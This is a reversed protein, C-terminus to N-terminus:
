GAIRLAAVTLAAASLCCPVLVLTSSRSYAVFRVVALLNLGCKEVGSLPVDVRRQLDSASHRNSKWTTTVAADKPWGTVFTVAEVTM